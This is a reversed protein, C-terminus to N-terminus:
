ATEGSTAALLRQVEEDAVPAFDEYWFGIASLNPPMQLCIVDDAEKLLREVTDPPAVPCAVITRSAGRTALARLAALMTSGTAIGDDVVVATKGSVALPPRGGRYVRERRALEAREREVVEEIEQPSLDLARLVEENYVVVDDSSLAGFALEPQWPVGLKRVLLVDLPVGLKSAIEQAVPVGGRPLALIVSQTGEILPAVREALQRGADRRDVFRYWPTGGNRARRKLESAGSEPRSMAEEEHEGSSRGRTSEEALYM